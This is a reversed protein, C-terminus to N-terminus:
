TPRRYHSPEISEYMKEGRIEMDMRSCHVRDCQNVSGYQETKSSIPAGGMRRGAEPQGFVRGPASRVLPRGIPKAGAIAYLFWVMDSFSDYSSRGETGIILTKLARALCPQSLATASLNAM